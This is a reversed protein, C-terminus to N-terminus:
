EESARNIVVIAVVAIAAVSLILQTPTFNKSAKRLLTGGNKLLDDMHESKGQFVNVAAEFTRAIDEPLIKEIQQLQDAM